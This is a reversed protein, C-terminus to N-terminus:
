YLPRRKKQKRTHKGRKQTQHDGFSEIKDKYVDFSAETALYVRIKQHLAGKSINIRMGHVDQQLPRVVIRLPSGPSGANIIPGLSIKKIEEETELFDLLPISEAIVTSHNKSYKKGARHKKSSM